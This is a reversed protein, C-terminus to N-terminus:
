GSKGAVARDIKGELKDMTDEIRKRAASEADRWAEFERRAVFAGSDIERHIARDEVHKDLRDALRAVNTWLWGMMAINVTLLASLVKDWVSDWNRGVGM